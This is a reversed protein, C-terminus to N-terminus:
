PFSLPVGISQKNFASAATSEEHMADNGKTGDSQKMICVSKFSEVDCYPQGNQCERDLRKVARSDACAAVSLKQHVVVFVICM